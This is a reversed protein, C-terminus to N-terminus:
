KCETYFISMFKSTWFALNEYIDSFNFWPLYFIKLYWIFVQHKTCWFQHRNEIGFALLKIQAGKYREKKWWGMPIRKTEM